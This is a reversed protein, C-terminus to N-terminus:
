TVNKKVKESARQNWRVALEGPYTMRDEKDFRADGAGISLPICLEDLICSDDFSHNKHMWYLEERSQGDKDTWRIHEFVMGRGCFPCPKIRMLSQHKINEAM